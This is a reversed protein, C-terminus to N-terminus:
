FLPEPTFFNFFAARSHIYFFDKPKLICHFWQDTCSIPKVFVAHKQATKGNSNCGLTTTGAHRAEAFLTTLIFALLPLM